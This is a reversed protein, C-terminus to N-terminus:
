AEGQVQPQAIVQAPSQNVFELFKRLIDVYSIIGKMSCYVQGGASGLDGVLIATPRDTKSSIFKSIADKITTNNPSITNHEGVAGNRGSMQAIERLTIKRAYRNILNHNYTSLVVDDVFGDIQNSKGDDSRILPFHNFPLDKYTAVASTVSDTICLTKVKTNTVTSIPLNLFQDNASNTLLLRLLDTYSYMSKVEGNSRSIIPITGQRKLQNDKKLLAEFVNIFDDDSYLSFGPPTDTKFYSPFAERILKKNTEIVTDYLKDIKLGAKVLEDIPLQERPPTKFLRLETKSIVCILKKKHESEVIPIHRPPLNGESSPTEMLLSLISIDDDPTLFELEQGKVEYTSIPQHINITM